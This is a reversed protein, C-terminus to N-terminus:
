WIVQLRRPGDFVLLGPKVEVLRYGDAREGVALQRGDALRVWSSPGYLVEVIVFPLPAAAPVSADAASDDVRDAAAPAGDDAAAKPTVRRQGSESPAEVGNGAEGPGISRRDDRGDSQRDEQRNDRREDRREDSARPAPAEQAHAEGMPAVDLQWALLGVGLLLSVGGLGWVWRRMLRQPDRGPSKAVGPRPPREDELAQMAEAWHATEEVDPGTDRPLPPADGGASTDRDDEPGNVSANVSVDVPATGGGGLAALAEPTPWPAAMDQVALWVGAVRFPQDPGLVAGVPLPQGAADFVDGCAEELIPRGDADLGVRLHGASLGVDLLLLDDDDGTGVQLADHLPLAAGAQLGGLVRLELVVQLTEDM